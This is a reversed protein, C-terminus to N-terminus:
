LNKLCKHYSGCNDMQYAAITDLFLAMELLNWGAYNVVSFEIANQIDCNIM